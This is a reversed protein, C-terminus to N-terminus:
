PLIVRPSYDLVGTGQQSMFMRAIVNQAPRVRAETTAARQWGGGALSLKASRVAKDPEESVNEPVSAPAVRSVPSGVFAQEAKTDPPETQHVHVAASDVATTRAMM